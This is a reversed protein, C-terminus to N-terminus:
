KSLLITLMITRFDLMIPIIINQGIKFTNSRPVALSLMHKEHKGQWLAVIGCIKCIVFTAASPTSFKMKAEMTESFSTGQFVASTM